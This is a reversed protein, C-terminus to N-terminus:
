MISLLLQFNTGMMKMSNKFFKQFPTEDFKDVILM